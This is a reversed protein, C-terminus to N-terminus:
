DVGQNSRRSDTNCSCRFGARQAVGASSDRGDGRYKTVNRNRDFPIATLSTAYGRFKHRRNEWCPALRLQKKTSHSQSLEIIQFCLASYVAAFLVRPGTISRAPMIMLPSSSKHSRRTWHLALPKSAREPNARESSVAGAL